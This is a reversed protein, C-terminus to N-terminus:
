QCCLECSDIFNNFRLSFEGGIRFSIAVNVFLMYYSTFAHLLMYYAPKQSKGKDKHM